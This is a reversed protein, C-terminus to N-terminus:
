HANPSIIYNWEGHFEDRAINIANFDEDSVKIGTPYLKNNLEAQIALGTKTTTNAILNVIIEHNVLPRGRWNMSIHCFMKHEIKNWKSTGPPFHSVRIPFGIEDAFNQLEKKWLRVHSGNSGGGDATIMLEKADPYRAKGMSYWWKRITDVAFSSTDHDTGVSVWGLNNAIDYVGYPNARGLDEDIFDYVRVKEPQGKLRYTKGANKYQGVLEKKKTDVSIVPNNESLVKKVKENILEFQANRDPNGSGELTKRNSQLSYGLEKELLMGVTQHSIKHGLDVLAGALNRLSKSTWLLPSEPDGRTAPEVLKKLDELVVPVTKLLTKRGGGNRRTKGSLLCIGETVKEQLEKLGAHITIRAMGTVEAIKTIGGRGLAKAETAALLRKLREDLAWSITEFRQKALEVNDM